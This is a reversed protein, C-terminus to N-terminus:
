HNRVATCCIHVRNYVLKNIIIIKKRGGKPALILTPMTHKEPQTTSLIFGESSTQTKRNFTQLLLTIFTM